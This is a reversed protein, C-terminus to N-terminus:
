QPARGPITRVRDGADRQRHPRRAPARAPESPPPHQAAAGLHRHAAQMIRAIQDASREPLERRLRCAEEILEAHERISGRDGRPRPRLGDLGREQYARLWRRLTERSYRRWDGNPQEYDLLSLQRLLQRREAGELGQGVLASIASFRSLAIQESRDPSMSAEQSPIRGLRLREPRGRRGWFHPRGSASRVAGPPGAGGAGSGGWPRRAGAGGPRSGAERVANMVARERGAPLQAFEAGLEVALRSYGAWLEEARQRHRVRWNRVTALPLGLRVATHVTARGKEVSEELAQGIVEVADVRWEHLFDPLLAHTAECSRCYGRRVWILREELGGPGALWRVGRQYWGWWTLLLECGPCLQRPVEVQKGLEVYAEM